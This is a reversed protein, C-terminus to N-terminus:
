CAAEELVSEALRPLDDLLAHRPAAFETVLRTIDIRPFRLAAADERVTFRWGMCRGLVGAIADHTVNAGSAVNYLRVAGREAIARLSTVVDSLAVYDKASRLSQGLVVQGTAAGERLIQGLFSGAGMGPGYVNSLRAVRVGPRTDALCLAEGALKTINYLDGPMGPQVALAVDERALEARAYLRTSSLFLFSRFDLESLFRGVLGVHAEATEVPRTRFDATLGICDIVHGAPCREALFAPLGIRTIARVGCNQARL